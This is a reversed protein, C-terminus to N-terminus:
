DESEALSVHVVKKVFILHASGFIDVLTLTELGGMESVADLLNKETPVDKVELHLSLREGNDFTFNANVRHTM